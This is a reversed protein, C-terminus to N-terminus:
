GAVIPWYPMGKSTLLLDPPRSNQKKFFITLFSRRQGLKPKFNSPAFYCLGTPYSQIKHEFGSSRTETFKQKYHIITISNEM